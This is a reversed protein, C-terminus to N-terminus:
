NQGQMWCTCGVSAALLRIAFTSQRAPGGGGPFWAARSAAPHPERLFARLALSIAILLFWVTEGAMGHVKPGTVVMFSEIHLLGWFATILSYGAQLLILM